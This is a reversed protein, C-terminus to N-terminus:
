AKKKFKCVVKYGLINEIMYIYFSASKVELYDLNDFYYSGDHRRVQLIM